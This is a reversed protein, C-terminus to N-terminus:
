PNCFGCFQPDIDKKGDFRDQREQYDCKVCALVEFAYQQSPAHCVRCPLAGERGISGFGPTQCCPCTKLIRQALKEALLGIVQMRTPNYLARMDTSLLLEDNRILGQKVACTLDDLNQIGKAIVQNLDISQLCLAHSPFKVKKLFDSLDMERHVRLTHYNTEYSVLQEQICIDREKDILLMVEHNMPIWPFSPHPGFSGESAIACSQGAAEAALQAKLRCTTLSDHPRPIEGTFTGLLDTDLHSTIIQCNWYKQFVPAIVKEKQHKSAVVIMRDHYSM